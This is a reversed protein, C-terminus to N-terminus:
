GIRPSALWFHGPEANALGPPSELAAPLPTDVAAAMTLVFSGYRIWWGPMRLGEHARIELSSWGASGEDLTVEVSRTPRRLGTRLVKLASEKASWILNATLDADAAAAVARQEADTFYDNIFAQSRPEVLELDCGIRDSGDLVAAVAWDARDTMGLVLGAPEGNIWAEPAGDQANRITIAALDRPEFSLGRARAITAKATYRALKAETRRKTFRMGDFRAAEVADIWTEDAPLDGLGVSWWQIAPTM